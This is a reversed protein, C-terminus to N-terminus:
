ATQFTSAAPTPNTADNLANQLFAVILFDGSPIASKKQQKTESQKPIQRASPLGLM